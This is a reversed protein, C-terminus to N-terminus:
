GLATGQYSQREFSLLDHDLRDRNTNRMTEVGACDGDIHDYVVIVYLHMVITQSSLPLRVM